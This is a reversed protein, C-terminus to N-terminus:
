CLVWLVRLFCGDTQWVSKVVASTGMACAVKNYDRDFM